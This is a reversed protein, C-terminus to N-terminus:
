IVGSSQAIALMEKVDEDKLSEEVNGWLQLNVKAWSLYMQKAQDTYFYIGSEMLHNQEECIKHALRAIDVKNEEIYKSAFLIPTVPLAKFLTDADSLAKAELSIDGHRNTTCEEMIIQEIGAIEESLYGSKILLEERLGKGAEPKSNSQVIYNLDHVLAASQVIFENAGLEKAFGMSKNTVFTIHHWGHFLLEKQHKEYLPILEGKLLNIKENESM